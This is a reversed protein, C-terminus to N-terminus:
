RPPWVAGMAANIQFDGFKPNGSVRIQPDAEAGTVTRARPMDGEM